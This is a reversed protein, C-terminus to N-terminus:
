PYINVFKIAYIDCLIDLNTETERIIIYSIGVKQLIGTRDQIINTGILFTIRMRKGIQTKLYGQTYETGLDTPSGPAVTFDSPSMPAPQTQEGTLDSPPMPAQQTQEDGPFTQPGPMMSMARCRPYSYNSNYQPFM